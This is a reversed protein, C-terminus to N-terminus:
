PERERFQRARARRLSEEAALWDEVDHGDERGRQEYRAYAEMAIEIASIERPRNASDPPTEWAPESASAPRVDGDPQTAPAPPPFATRTSM